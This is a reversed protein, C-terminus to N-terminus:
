VHPEDRPSRKSPDLRHGHEEYEAARASIIRAEEVVLPGLTKPLTPDPPYDVYSIAIGAIPYGAADVIAAGVANVGLAAEDKAAAWGRKRIGHLQADLAARTRLSRETLVALGETGLVRDLEAAPLLALMAKGYATTTIPLRDGATWMFRVPRRGERHTIIVADAADIVGLYATYGTENVLKDLCRTAFGLLPNATLYLSGIRFATLGIQYRPDGPKREVFGAAELTSLIRVVITRSLDLHRALESANLEREGRSFACLIRLAREVTKAKEM